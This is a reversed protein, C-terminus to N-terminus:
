PNQVPLYALEVLEQHIEVRFRAVTENIEAGEVLDLPQVVLQLHRHERYEGKPVRHVVLGGLADRFGQIILDKQDAARILIM